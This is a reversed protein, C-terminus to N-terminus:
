WRGSWESRASKQTSADKPRMLPIKSFGTIRKGSDGGNMFRRRRHMRKRLTSVVAACARRKSRWKGFRRMSNGFPGQKRFDPRVYVSQVWWFDGNRWDSWEKTVMLSGVVGDGSVAVLYFGRGPNEFVGKVGALLVAPDLEKGETERAMELNFEVLIPVNGSVARLIEVEDAM